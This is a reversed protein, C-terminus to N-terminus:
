ANPVKMSNALTAVDDFTNLNTFANITPQGSDTFDVEVYRLSKQWASVKRGGSEIYRTLSSLCAKNCLSVVPHTNGASKAVAIDASHQTLAKYLRAALDNPLKPADCPITLLFDHKAHIIGVQFGALPGIFDSTIDQFVPYGFAQYQGIERNANILIEDVQPSILAIVHAILPQHNFSVLGKDVGNMRTARGGALIVCSIAM